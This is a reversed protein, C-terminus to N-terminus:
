FRSDQQASTQYSIDKEEHRQLAVFVGIVFVFTLLGILVWEFVDIKQMHCEVM